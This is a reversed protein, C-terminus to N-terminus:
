YSSDQEPVSTPSLVAIPCIFYFNRLTLLYSSSESRHHKVTSLKKVKDLKIIEKVKQLKEFKIICRSWGVFVSDSKNKQLIKLIQQRIQCRKVAAICLDDVRMDAPFRAAVDSESRQRMAMYRVLLHLKAM